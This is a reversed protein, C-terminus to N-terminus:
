AVNTAQDMSLIIAQYWRVFEVVDDATVHENITHAGHQESMQFYRFRYINKTLDWYRRTDTNGTSMFPSIILDKGPELDVISGDKSVQPRSAWMGRATGAMVTWASDADSADTPSIPAPDTYYGYANDLLVRSHPNGHHVAKGDFGVLTLNYSKVIPLFIDIVREELEKHNSAVNVRHNVVARVSEPLANVKLGGNIIDAAQTTTMMAEIANGQGPGTSAGSIGAQIIEHPLSSWAKSKGKRTELVTHRLSKPMDKAHAAGCTMFGYVPSSQTLYVPHPHRELEALLLSMYGVGTHPPPVSSHGGLTEVTIGLDYHGKEAVGPMAFHQGWSTLLGSGEDILLSISDKGYKDLLYKAIAPAGVQGGREEDSGFGLIITRAPKFDTTELLHEIAAMIAILSGKTDSSGRGWISHGDYLGSYPPKDWQPLSAPLVPVVDQHATLLLPKLSPDSGPWEYVLALNHVSKLMTAHLKPFSTELFSQFKKLPAWRPDEDIPGMEDFVETPIQVARSLWDVIRDKENLVESVNYGKPLRPEAQVCAGKLTDPQVNLNLTPATYLAAGALLSLIAVIPWKSRKSPAPSTATPLYIPGTM